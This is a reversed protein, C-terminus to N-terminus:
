RIQIFQKISEGSCHYMDYFDAAPMGLTDAAFSGSLPIHYEAAISSFVPQWEQLVREHKQRVAKYFAPHYPIMIFHISVNKRQLYTILNDFLRIKATDPAPIGVESGNVEADQAVKNVNPNAYDLSYCVTGDSFRGYIKPRNQGVDYYKKSKHKMLYEMSSKFYDLSFLPTIKRFLNLQPFSSSSSPDAAIKPLLYQYYPYLSEWETSGGQGLLFHDVGIIMEGPLKKLSDMAGVIAIVDNINGHSVGCNLVTKGPFFSSGIEMVRSSGFIAVDPTKHIDKIMQEQLIREDYNSLNDVNHGNSLAQAVGDLYVAGSFVNAPDVLYNTLVVLLGVPPVIFSLKLFLKRM